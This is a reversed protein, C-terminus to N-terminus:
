VGIYQELLGEADLADISDHEVIRGNELIYAREVTKRVLEVNQEVLMIPIGLENHIQPLINGLDKVISPQIGESPEDLLVLKPDTVLGRAIALMQQQGGSLTEGKQDLREELIPFYEFVDDFTIRGDDGSIYAGMNLNEQVTLGPFIERGQPILTIGRLAREHAQLKTIDEGALKITGSQAELTGAICDLLTTKGMGNRGLVAVFEDDDIYLSLDRIIITEGYGVTLSDVNLM